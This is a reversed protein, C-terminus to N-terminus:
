KLKILLHLFSGENKRLNGTNLVFEPLYIDKAKVCEFTDKNTQYWEKESKKM